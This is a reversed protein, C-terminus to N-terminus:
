TKLRNPKQPLPLFGVIIMLLCILGLKYKFLQYALDNESHSFYDITCLIASLTLTTFLSIMYLRFFYFDVTDFVYQNKIRYNILKIRYSKCKIHIEKWDIKFSKLNDSVAKKVLLDLLWIAIKYLMIKM